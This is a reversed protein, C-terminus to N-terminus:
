LFIKIIKRIRITSVGFNAYGYRAYVYKEFCNKQFNTRITLHSLGFNAYGYRPYGYKELCHRLGKCFVKNDYQKLIQGRLGQQYLGIAINEPM